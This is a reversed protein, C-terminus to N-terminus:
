HACLDFGSPVYLQVALGQCAIICCLPPLLPLGLDYFEVLKFLGSTVLNLQETFCDAKLCCRNSMFYNMCSLFTLETFFESFLLMDGEPYCHKYKGLNTIFTHPLCSQALIVKPGFM